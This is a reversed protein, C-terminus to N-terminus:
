TTSSSFSAMTKHTMMWSSRASVRKMRDFKPIPKVDVKNGSVDMLIAYGTSMRGKIFYDQGEYHVKDFKRFGRIKGTNIRQESRVGKTQQYDGDAVCRKSLVTSTRTMATGTRKSILTLFGCCRPLRPLDAGNNPGGGGGM